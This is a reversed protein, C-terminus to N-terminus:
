ERRGPQIGISFKAQSNYSSGSKMSDEHSQFELYLARNTADRAEQLAAQINKGLNMITAEDDATRTWVAIRDGARRRAVVAGTIEDSADVTEGILGLVLNEWYHGLLQKETNRVNFVWKGGRENAPDEWMPKIGEKFLHYNSNVELQPPQKMHTYLAWFSDVTDFSGVAELNSEYANSDGRKASKNAGRKDYWFTWTAELAHETAREEATSNSTASDMRQGCSDGM